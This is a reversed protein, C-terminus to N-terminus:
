NVLKHTNKLKQLVVKFGEEIYNNTVFKPIDIKNDILYKCVIDKTINNFEILNNVKDKLKTIEQNNFELNSNEKFGVQTKKNVNTNIFIITNKFSIDEGKANKIIGEELIQDLLKKIEVSGYEYNEIIIASYPNYKLNNIIVEDDYGILGATSGILKSISSPSSYESFDLKIINMKLTKSILNAMYTKGVGSKGNFIFSLPLDNKFFMENLTNMVKEIAKDQGYIKQNLEENLLQLLRQKEKPVPISEKKSIVEFIDEETINQTKRKLLNDIKLRVKQELKHIKIAEDFNNEKIYKEKETHLATLKKQYFNIKENQEKNLCILACVSDLVDLSKDPNKKDYIYKSTLDVIKEIDTNKIKINYHKEYNEKVKFLIDKTEENTPELISITEFRRALAKDNAIFKNYEYTTTAGICKIVGRALYPKLIDAANIAGEAGGANVMSHVEDIFIIYEPHHELEKIIKTLREEFEGRYKTGAVLSGMELAVIVKNNLKTPVLGKNIRRALEEVIATKGVGAPGILLPNNKDKRILTEIIYSLEKDRGILKEEMNVQENLNKGIELLELKPTDKKTDIVEEYLEDIDIDMGILVRIAIGEGEDLLSALLHRYSLEENKKMANNVANKIVKKLLPTYLIYSSKKTATGVVNILEKKFNEYTLGYELTINNIEESMKLLALLLHETGVYPHHLDLMEQESQKFLKSIEINFFDFM